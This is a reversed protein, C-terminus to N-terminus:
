KIYEEIWNLVVESMDTNNRITAIKFKARLSKSINITLKVNQGARVERIANEKRTDSRTTPKVTLAM